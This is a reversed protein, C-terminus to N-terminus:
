IVNQNREECQPCTDTVGLKHSRIEIIRDLRAMEAKFQKENM